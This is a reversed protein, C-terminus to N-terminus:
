KLIELPLCEAHVTKRNLISQLFAWLFAFYGEVCEDDSKFSKQADKQSQDLRLTSESMRNPIRKTKRHYMPGILKGDSPMRTKPEFSLFSSTTIISQKSMNKHM